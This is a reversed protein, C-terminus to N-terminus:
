KGHLMLKLSKCEPLEQYVRCERCDEDRRRCATEELSWCPAVQETYAICKDRDAPSCKKWKWCPMLAMLRRIGEINLGEENIMERICLVLELDHVSYHRRGSETRHPLILGRQEYMRLTMVSIGLREAALGITFLPEFKSIEIGAM